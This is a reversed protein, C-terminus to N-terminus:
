SGCWLGEFGYGTHRESFAVPDGPLNISDCGAASGMKPGCLLCRPSSGGARGRGAGAKRRKRLSPESLSKGCRPVGRPVLPPTELRVGARAEYKSAIVDSNLLLARSASSLTRM